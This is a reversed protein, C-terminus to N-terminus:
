LSSNKSCFDTVELENLLTDLISEFHNKHSRSTFSASSLRALEQLSARLPCKTLIEKISLISLYLQTQFIEIPFIKLDCVM